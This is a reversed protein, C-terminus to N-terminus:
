RVQSSALHRPALVASILAVGAAATFAPAAGLGELLGGVLSGGISQGLALMLFAVGVGAAPQECYTAAASILILGSMAIYVAGFAGCAAATLGVQGPLLGIVATALAILVASGGWAVRMGVRHAIDGVAAGLLGCLGLGSWAVTATFQSQGGSGTLVDQGFVWVAATAAGMLVATAHLRLAGDPLLPDPLLSRLREGTGQREAGPRALRAHPVSQAAWLTALLAVAAFILWASRWHALTVLAVPGSVAVGLGTGANIITQVRDRHPWAVRASVAHALPPSALGTSMGGLVVGVALVAAHPALGVLATGLTALTGTIVVMTRSGLRPTLMMAPYIALCYAVYSSSGILGVVGPDLGFEARFAPVFLGYAFRALGYAVAILVM